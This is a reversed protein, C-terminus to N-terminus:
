RLTYLNLIQSEQLQGTAWTICNPSHVIQSLFTPMDSVLAVPKQKPKQFATHTHNTQPLIHELSHIDKAWLSPFFLLVIVYVFVMRLM